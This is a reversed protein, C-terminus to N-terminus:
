DNLFRLVEEICNDLEKKIQHEWFRFVKFGMEELAKNNETDRQVNREIKPIWFARNTKIKDKKEHWNYGHWFEGDIFVVFRKSVNSIDPKGPLKKFAVRYRVGKKYLARRFIIEPKTDKSKIKAMHKSRAATTYFGASEEFRPVKIPDNKYTKSM